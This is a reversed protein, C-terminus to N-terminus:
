RVAVFVITLVAGGVLIALAYTRVLGTQVRSTESGLGRFFAGIEGVSALVVPAEVFRALGHSAAVAPRYFALDYAEDFYFKRELLTQFRPLVPVGM